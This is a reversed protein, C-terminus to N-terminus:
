KKNPIKNFCGHISESGCELPKEILKKFISDYFIYLIIITLKKFKAILTVGIGSVEGITSRELATLAM